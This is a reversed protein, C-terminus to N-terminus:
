LTPAAIGTIKEYKVSNWERSRRPGQIPSNALKQIIPFMIVAPIAQNIMGFNCNPAGTPSIKKPLQLIKTAMQEAGLIVDAINMKKIGSLGLYKSFTSNYFITELSRM